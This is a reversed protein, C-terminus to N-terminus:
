KGSKPMGHDWGTDETAVPLTVELLGAVPVRGHSEAWHPPIRLYSLFDLSSWVSVEERECLETQKKRGKKKVQVKFDSLRARTELLKSQTTRTIDLRIQKKKLQLHFIFQRQCTKSVLMQYTRCEPAKRSYSMREDITEILSEKGNMLTFGSNIQPFVLNTRVQYQSGM